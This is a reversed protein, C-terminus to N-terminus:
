STLERRLIRAFPDEDAADGILGRIRDRTAHVADCREAAELTSRYAAVVDAGTLEYGYGRAMWHLALLGAELAFAPEKDSFDRWARSAWSVTPGGRRSRGRSASSAGGTPWCSSTPCPTPPWGM